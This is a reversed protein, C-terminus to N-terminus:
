LPWSNAIGGGGLGPANRPPAALGGRQQGGGNNRRGPGGSDKLPKGFTIAKTLRLNLSFQSPGTLYNIPVITEGPQPVKDFSGFPTVM